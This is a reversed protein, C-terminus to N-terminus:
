SIVIREIIENKIAGDLDNLVTHFKWQDNPHTEWVFGVARDRGNNKAEYLALDALQITKEYCSHKANIPTLAFGLSCRLVLHKEASIEIDIERCNLLIDKVLQTVEQVSTLPCVVLFEEGGWRSAIQHSKVSNKLMDAFIKLAKDGIEHSYKDNVSKFHDLDILVFGTPKVDGKTKIKELENHVFNRNVLQTLNDHNALWELGKNLENLEKTREQVIKELKLAYQKSRYNRIVFAALIVLGVLAIFLRTQWFPPIVTFDYHAPKTNWQGNGIRATVEFRYDGAALSDIQLERLRTERWPANIKNNFRYRYTIDSARQFSIAAFKILLSSDQQKIEAPKNLDLPKQNNNISLIHIPPEDSGGVKFDKDFRSIGEGTGFWLNGDPDKYGAGRNILDFVLGERSSIVTFNEGDFIAVGRSTGIWINDGKGPLIVTSNNHPLGEKKTWNKFHNNKFYSLGNNTAIWLGGTKDEYFDNIFNAPLGDNTSWNTFKGGKLYTLGYSSALWFGGNQSEIIRNIRNHPLGDKTTYTIFNQGDYHNLGNNTGIWLSDDSAQIIHYIVSGSLGQDQDFHIFKGDVFKSMGQLTGFWTTGNNDVMISLIKNHPLGQKRTYHTIKNNCIYSAGNGNTGVWLCNNKDNAITYVNPNPLGAQTKWNLVNTTSLRTLGGGYTGFWLNNEQDQFIENISNDPLGDTMDFHQIITNNQDIKYTGFDRSGLWIYGENDYMICNITQKSLDVNLQLAEFAIGDYRAVGFRTGVWISGDKHQFITRVESKKAHWQIQQVKDGKIKFIRKSTGVWINGQNDALISRVRNTRIGNKYNIQRILRPNEGIELQLVGAGYTAVWLTGDPAQSLARTSYTGLQIDKPKFAHFSKGDFWALGKETAIWLMGDDTKLLDRALNHPLGDDRGYTWFQKGDYRNIGTRSAIWLFGLDDQEISFIVTDELGDAISLSAFPMQQAIVQFNFIFLFFLIFQHILSSAILNRNSQAKVCFMKDIKVITSTKYMVKRQGGSSHLVGFVGKIM